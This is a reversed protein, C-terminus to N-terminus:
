LMQVWGESLSIGISLIAQYLLEAGKWLSASMSSGDGSPHGCETAKEKRLVAKMAPPM